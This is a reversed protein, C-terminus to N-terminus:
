YTGRSELLEGFPGYEYAAAENGSTDGLRVLNGNGDYCPGAAGIRIRAASLVM